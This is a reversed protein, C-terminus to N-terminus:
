RHAARTRTRQSSTAVAHSPAAHPLRHARGAGGAGAADGPASDECSPVGLGAVAPRTPVQCRLWFGGRQGRDRSCCGISLGNGGWDAPQLETHLSAPCLKLRPQNAVQLLDQELAQAAGRVPNPGHLGTLTTSIPSPEGRWREADERPVPSHDSAFPQKSVRLM